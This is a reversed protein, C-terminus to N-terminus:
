VCNWKIKVFVKHPQYSERGWKASSSISAYLPGIAPLHCFGPEWWLGTSWFWWGGIIVLVKGNWKTEFCDKSCGLAHWTQVTYLPNLSSGCALGARWSSPTQHPPAFLCIFSYNCRLLCARERKSAQCLPPLRALFGPNVEPLPWTEPPKSPHIPTQWASSLYLSYWAILITCTFIQFCSVPSPFFDLTAPTYPLYHRWVLDNSNLNRLSPVDPQPTQIKNM